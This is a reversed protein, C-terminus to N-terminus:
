RNDDAVLTPITVTVVAGANEWSDISLGYNSGFHIRLREHVNRLGFGFSKELEGCGTLYEQIKILQEKIMGVGNDRVEIRIMRGDRYGRIQIVGQDLKKKVGHYIANEVLPQLTLKIINEEIIAPEIEFEFQLKDAYKMQQIVLYNRVHEIEERITIIEQGQSLGIRFFNGLALLMKSANESEGLACLQHISYITNYLFHPNIQAQLITLDAIRKKEQEEKIQELLTNVQVVLAGIGNNLIGIENSITIDFPVYMDGETVCKVKKTLKSLPKTIITALVNSMLAAVILLIFSLILILSKIYDTKSLIENEPLVAVIKWKCTNITNYVVVMKPGFPKQYKFNGHTNSLERIRTLIGSDLQYRPEVSKFAMSGENSVLALYGNPSIVPNKLIKKFFSERLNFLIIGRVTSDEQGIMKFLSVVKTNDGKFVQDQHLNLWYCEFPNGYFRKRWQLFSFDVGYYLNDTKYLLVQGDNLYFLMSKLSSYYAIYIKNINETLRIYDFDTLRWLQDNGVRSIVSLLDKDESLVTLQEFIDYLRHDLYNKTQSVTDAINIYAQSELQRRSVTYACIGVTVTIITIIPIFLWVILSKVSYFVNEAFYHKM